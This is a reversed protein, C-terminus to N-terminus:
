CHPQWIAEKRQAILTYNLSSTPFDSEQCKVYLVLVPNMLTM